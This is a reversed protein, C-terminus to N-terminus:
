ALSYLVVGLLFLEARTWFMAPSDKGSFFFIIGVIIVHVSTFAKGVEGWSFSDSVEDQIAGDEKLKSKVYAKEEENFFRAHDPSSPLLAFSVLGFLVTIAGKSFFLFILIHLERM